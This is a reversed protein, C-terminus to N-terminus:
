SRDKPDLYECGCLHFIEREDRAFVRDGNSIKHFAEGYAHPQIGHKPASAMLRINTDKGGTRIVLTRPWDLLDPECFFDVNIGSERHVAHRNLKSWASVKGTVALRKTIMGSSLWSDIVREALSYDKTDFLGDSEKAIKPVFVIEIDSVTLKQRRLSGAIEIMLCSPRLQEMLSRAIIAADEAPWKTKATM